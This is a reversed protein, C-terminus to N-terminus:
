YGMFFCAGDKETIDKIPLAKIEDITMTSYQTKNLFLRERGGDQYAPVEYHWAPDAYIINYKKM